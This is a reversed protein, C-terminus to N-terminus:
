RFRDVVAVYRISSETQEADYFLPFLERTSAKMLADIPEEDGLTAVRFAAAEIIM